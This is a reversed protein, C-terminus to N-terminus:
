QGNSKIPWPKSGPKVEEIANGLEGLADILRDEIAEDCRIAIPWEDSSGVNNWLIEHVKIAAEELRTM